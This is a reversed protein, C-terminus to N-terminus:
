SLPNDESGLVWHLGKVVGRLANINRIHLAIQKKDGKDCERLSREWALGVREARRVM